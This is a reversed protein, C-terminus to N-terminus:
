AAKGMLNRLVDVAEDMEGEGNTLYVRKRPWGGHKTCTSAANYVSLSWDCGPHACIRGKPQPGPIRHKPTSTQIIM